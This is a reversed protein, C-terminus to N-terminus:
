PWILRRIDSANVQTSGSMEVFYEEAQDSKLREVLAQAENEQLGERSRHFVHLHNEFAVGQEFGPGRADVVAIRLRPTQEKPSIRKVVVYIGAKFHQRESLSSALAFRLVGHERFVEAGVVRIGSNGREPSLPPMVRFDVVPGTSLRVEDLGLPKMECWPAPELARDVSSPIHLIADDDDEREIRARSVSVRRKKTLDDDAYILDVNASVKDRSRVFRVIVVDQLVSDRRFVGRRSEFSVVADFYGISILTRRMSVFHPGNFFSRPVIAVMVGEPKLLACACLIFSAYLNPAYLGLARLRKAQEGSSAQKAYPPNMLVHSFRRDWLNRLTFELFDETLVEIQNYRNDAAIDSLHSAFIPDIEVATLEISTSNSRELVADLLAGAGSGPDLLTLPEEAQRELLLDVMETAITEPTFIQNRSLRLRGIRAILRM